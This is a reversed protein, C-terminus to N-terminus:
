ILNNTVLALMMQANEAQLQKVMDETSLPVDFYEHFITGTTPDIFATYGKGPIAAPEPVNEVFMSNPQELTEPPLNAVDFHMIRVAAKTPNIPEYVVYAKM